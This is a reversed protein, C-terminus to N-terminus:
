EPETPTMLCKTNVLKKGDDEEYLLLLTYEEGAKPLDYGASDIFAMYGSKDYDTGDSYHSTVNGNTMHYTPISYYTGNTELVISLKIDESPNAVHVAWGEIDIHGRGIEKDYTYEAKDVNVDYGNTLNDILEVNSVDLERVEDNKLAKYSWLSFAGILIIILVPITKYFYNFLKKDKPIDIFIGDSRSTAFFMMLVPNIQIEYFHHEISCEVAIVVLVWLPIWNCDKYEKICLYVYAICFVILAVYGYKFLINLYSSDIFFYDQPTILKENGRMEIYEGFPLVRCTEFAQKGLVLRSSIVRNLFSYVKNNPNFTISLIIIALAIIPMSVCLLKGIYKKMFSIIKKNFLKKTKYVIVGFSLLVICASTTLTNCFVYCFVAALLLIAVDIWWVKKVLAKIWIYACCLFFPRVAFDTPYVMGLSERKKVGGFMRTSFRIYNIINGSLANYMAAFLLTAVVLCFVQLLRKQPIDKSGLILVVVEVGFFFTDTLSWGNFYNSCLLGGCLVLAIIGDITNWRDSLILKFIVVIILVIRLANFFREDWNFSFTTAMAMGKFVYIGYLALIVVNLYNIINKFSDKQIM